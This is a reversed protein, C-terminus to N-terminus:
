AARRELVPEPTVIGLALCTIINHQALISMEGGAEVCAPCLGPALTMDGCSRCPAGALAARVHSSLRAVLQAMLAGELANKCEACYASGCMPAQDCQRKGFGVCHVDYIDTWLYSIDDSMRCM